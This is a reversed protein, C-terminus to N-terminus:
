KNGTLAPSQMTGVAPTGVARRNYGVLGGVALTREYLFVLVTLQQTERTSTPSSCGAGRPRTGVATPATGGAPPPTRDDWGACAPKAALRLSDGAWTKLGQPM